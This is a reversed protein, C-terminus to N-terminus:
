RLYRLNNRIIGADLVINPFVTNRTMTQRAGDASLAFVRATGFNDSATSAAGRKVSVEVAWVTSATASISFTKERESSVCRADMAEIEALRVNGFATAASWRLESPLEELKPTTV